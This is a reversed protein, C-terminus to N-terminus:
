RTRWSRGGLTGIVTAYVTGCALDQEALKGNEPTDDMAIDEGDGDYSTSHAKLDSLQEQISKTIAAHYVPALDKITSSRSRSIRQTQM